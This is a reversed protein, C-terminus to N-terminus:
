KSPTEAFHKSVICNEETYLKEQMLTCTVLGQMEGNRLLEETEPISNMLKLVGAQAQLFKIYKFAAQFMEATNMKHGGPILKGLEQTKESIKRRRVRAAMSQASLSRRGNGVNQKKVLVNCSEEDQDIRNGYRSDYWPPLTAACGGGQYIEPLPPLESPIEPVMRYETCFQSLHAHDSAGSNPVNYYPDQYTFSSVQLLEPSPLLVNGTPIVSPLVDSYNCSGLSPIVELNNSYNPDFLPSFGTDYFTYDEHFTYLEPSPSPPRFISSYAADHGSWNNYFSLAM